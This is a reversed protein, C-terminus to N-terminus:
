MSGIAIENKNHPNKGRITTFGIEEYNGDLIDIQFNMTQGNSNGSSLNREPAVVGNVYGAWGITKIRPDSLVMQDFEIQSFDEKDTIQLSIDSSDYGWLPSAQKIASISHLLVFGLVLVASVITALFIMLISAKRNKLLNRLGIVITLPTREFSIIKSEKGAVRKALISNDSESMGYRIAQM